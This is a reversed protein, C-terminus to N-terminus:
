RADAGRGRSGLLRPWLRMRVHFGAYIGHCMGGCTRVAVCTCTCVLARARVCTPMGLSFSEQRRRREEEKRAHLVEQFKGALSASVDEYVARSKNDLQKWEQRLMREVFHGDSMPRACGSGVLLEDDQGVPEEGRRGLEDDGRFESDECLRDEMKKGSGEAGDGDKEMNVAGGSRDDVGPHRRDPGSGGAGSAFLSSASCAALADMADKLLSKVTSMTANLSVGARHWDIDVNDIQGSAANWGNNYFCGRVSPYSASAATLLGCAETGAKQRCRCRDELAVASPGDREALEDDNSQITMNNVLALVLTLNQMERRLATIRCQQERERERCDSLRHVLQPKVAARFVQFPPPPKASVDLPLWQFGTGIQVWQYPDALTPLFCVVSRDISEVPDDMYQGTDADHYGWRYNQYRWLPEKGSASRRISRTSRTYTQVPGWSLCPRVNQRAHYQFTGAIREAVSKNHVDVLVIARVPIQSSLHWILMMLPDGRLAPRRGLRGQPINIRVLGPELADSNIIFLSVNYQAALQVAQDRQARVLVMRRTLQQPSPPLMPPRTIPPPRNSNPPRNILNLAGAPRGPRRPSVYTAADRANGMHQQQGDQWAARAEPM